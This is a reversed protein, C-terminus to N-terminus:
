LLVPTIDSRTIFSVEYIKLKTLDDKIKTPIKSIHDVGYHRMIDKLTVTFVYKLLPTKATGVNQIEFIELNSGNTDLAEKYIDVIMDRYACDGLYKSINRKDPSVYLFDITKRFVEPERFELYGINELYDQFDTFATSHTNLKYKSLSEEAKDKLSIGFVCDLLTTVYNGNFPMSVNSFFEYKFADVLNKIQDSKTVTTSIQYPTSSTDCYKYLLYELNSEIIEEMMKKMNDSISPIGSSTTIDFISLLSSLSTYYYRGSGYTFEVKNSAMFDKIRSEYSDELSIDLDLEKGLDVMPKKKLTYLVLEPCDSITYLGLDKCPLIPCSKLVDSLKKSDPCFNSFVHSSVEKNLKYDNNNYSDLERHSVYTGLYWFSGNELEYRNGPIYKTTKKYLSLSVKRLFEDEAKIYLDTGPFILITKDPYIQSFGFVVGEAVGNNLTSGSIQELINEEYLNTIKLYKGSVELFLKGDSIKIRSGNNDISVPQVVSESIKQVPGWFKKSEPNAISVKGGDWSLYLYVKETISWNNM